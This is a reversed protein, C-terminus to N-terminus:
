SSVATHFLKICCVQSIAVKMAEILAMLANWIAKMQVVNQEAFQFKYYGHAHMQWVLLHSCDIVMPPLIAMVDDPIQFELDFEMAELDFSVTIFSSISLAAIIPPLPPTHILPCMPSRRHHLLRFGYPEGEGVQENFSEIAGDVVADPANAINEVLAEGGGVVEDVVAGPLAAGDVVADPANAINEVLAEGGGVVEDVVAGPLAKADDKLAEADDKIETVPAIVADVMNGPMDKISQKADTKAGKMMDQIQKFLKKIAKGVTM